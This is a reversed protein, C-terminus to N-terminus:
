ADESVRADEISTETPEIRRRIVGFVAYILALIFCPLVADESPLNLWLGFFRRTSPFRSFLDAFPPYLVVVVFFFYIARTAGQLLLRLVAM